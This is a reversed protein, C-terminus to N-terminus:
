TKSKQCFSNWTIKFYNIITIYMFRCGNNLNQDIHSMLFDSDRRVIIVNIIKKRLIKDVLVACAAVVTAPAADTAPAAVVSAPLCFRM